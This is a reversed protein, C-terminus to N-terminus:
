KPMAAIIPVIWTYFLNGAVGSVSGKVIDVVHKFIDPEHDNITRLAEKVSKEDSPAIGKEIINKLLHLSPSVITNSQEIIRDMLALWKEEKQASYNLTKGMIDQLKDYRKEVFDIRQTAIRIEGDKLSLLEKQTELQVKAINLQQELEIVDARDVFFSDPAIEGKIIQGYQQLTEEIEEKDGESTKIVMRVKLGHQEIRVKIDKEPYKKRIFTAFYTLISMGSQYLEPPFEIFKSILSPQPAEKHSERARLEERVVDLDGSLILHTVINELERVNGPWSYEYFFDPIVQGNIEFHPKKVKKTFQDAFFSFLPELDQPRERLPPIFISFVNLRYYLDERLLGEDILHKVDQTTTALIRCDVEIESDGGMRIFIRDQFVRLLKAQLNLSTDGIEDLLITGGEALELKGQKMSDAGFFAGKQFGFIEGELLQNPISACNVEVFPRDKRVSIAHLTQAILHKGVGPEGSILVSAHVDVIKRILDKVSLIAESNGIILEECLDV